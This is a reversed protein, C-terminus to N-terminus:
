SLQLFICDDKLYQCTPTVKHLEENSIFQSHGWGRAKNGTTIRAATNDGAHDDYTLEKSQHECDSIQNLLKVQFKKRLPWTVEDDYPGKM